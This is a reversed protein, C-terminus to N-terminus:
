SSRRLVLHFGLDPNLKADWDHSRPNGSGRVFDGHDFLGDAPLLDHRAFQELWWEKPKVTQHFVAGSVPDWDVFTAISCALVGDSTMNAAINRIAADVLATPIHEFLEWATVLNFLMRDGSETRAEFPFCIDATFLRDPIVRWEARRQLFSYDSGEVGISIHGALSFDWVLGGGACGIDMHRIVPFIEEARRVFRPHRTNDNRTGRPELHDPSDFAIPKDARFNLDLVAPKRGEAIMLKIDYLSDQLEIHRLRDIRSDIDALKSALQDTDISTAARPLQSLQNSIEQGIAEL